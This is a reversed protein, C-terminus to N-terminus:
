FAAALAGVTAPATTISDYGASCFYLWGLEADRADQIYSRLLAADAERGDAAAGVFDHVIVAAQDRYGADPTNAVITATSEYAPDAPDDLASEFAVVVDCIDYFSVDAAAGFNCVTVIQRAGFATRAFAVASSLYDFDTNRASAEDFFIGQVGIDAAAWSAWGAWSTINARLEAAPAAGYDTRVYGLTQVNAHLNLQAVGSMYNSDGNGPAGTAGPGDGPNVVVLWPVGPTAAVAALAPQWRAAGDGYIISPYVYLPLLVGTASVTPAALLLATAAAAAVVRLLALAM